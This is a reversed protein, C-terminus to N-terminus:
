FGQWEQLQTTTEWQSVSNEQVQFLALATELDKIALDRDGLQWYIKGRAKYAEALQGNLAIAQTHDAIAGQYDGLKARAIGRNFYADAYDPNTLILETFIAIAGRYNGKIGEDMGGILKEELPEDGTLPLSRDSDITGQGWSLLPLTFLIVGLITPPFTLKCFLFGHNVM